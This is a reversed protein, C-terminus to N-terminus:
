EAWVLCYDSTRDNVSMDLILKYDVAGSSEDIRRLQFQNTGHVARFPVRFKGFTRLHRKSLGVAGTNTRKQTVVPLRGIKAGVTQGSIVWSRCQQASNSRQRYVKHRAHHEAPDLLAKFM